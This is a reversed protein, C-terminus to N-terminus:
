RSWFMVLEDFDREGGPLINPGLIDRRIQEADNILQSGEEMKGMDQLVCGLKYKTRARENRYWTPRAEYVALARNLLERDPYPRLRAGTLVTHRGSVTPVEPLM